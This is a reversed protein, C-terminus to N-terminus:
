WACGGIMTDVFRAAMDSERAAECLARELKEVECGLSIVENERARAEGALDRLDALVRADGPYVASDHGLVACLGARLRSLDACVDFWLQYAATNQAALEINNRVSRKLLEWLAAREPYVTAPWDGTVPYGDQDIPGTYGSGRLDFFRTEAATEPKGDVRRSAPTGVMPTEGSQQTNPAGARRAIEQRLNGGPRTIESRPPRM